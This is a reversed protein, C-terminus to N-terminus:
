SGPTAMGAWCPMALTDGPNAALVTTLVEDVTEAVTATGYQWRGHSSWRRSLAGATEPPLFRGAQCDAAGVVITRKSAMM